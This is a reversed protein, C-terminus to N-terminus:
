RELSDRVEDAVGREFEDREQEPSMAPRNSKLSGATREVISPSRQLQAKGDALTVVVSDGERLGLARRVEIPVTM